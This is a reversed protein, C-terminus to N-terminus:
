THSGVNMTSEENMRVTNHMFGFEMMNEKIIM